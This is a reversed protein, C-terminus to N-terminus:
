NRRFEIPGAKDIYFQELGRTGIFWRAPRYSLTVEYFDESEEAGVVEWVLERDAYRGYIDRNDYAHRLALV